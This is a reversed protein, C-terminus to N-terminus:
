DHRLAIEPHNAALESRHVEVLEHFARGLHLSRELGALFGLIGPARDRFLVAVLGAHAKRDDFFGGADRGSLFKLFPGLVLPGMRFVPHPRESAPPSPRPPAVAPQFGPPDSVWQLYVAMARLTTVALNIPAWYGEPYLRRGIASACFVPLSARSMRGVRSRSASRRARMSAASRVPTTTSSRSASTARSSIRFSASSGSNAWTGSCTSMNSRPTLWPSVGRSHISTTACTTIPRSLRM